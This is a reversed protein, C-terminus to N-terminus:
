GALEVVLDEYDTPRTANFVRDAFEQGKERVVVEKWAVSRRQWTKVRATLLGKQVAAGAKLSELIEKELIEAAQKLEEIKSQHRFLKSLKSQTITKPM